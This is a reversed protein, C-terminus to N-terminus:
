TGMDVEQVITVHNVVFVVSIFSPDIFVRSVSTATRSRISPSSRIGSRGGATSSAATCVRVGRIMSRHLLISGIDTCYFNFCFLIHRRVIKLTM